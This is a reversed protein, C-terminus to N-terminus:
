YPTLNAHFKQADFNKGANAFSDRAFACLLPLWSCTDNLGKAHKRQAVLAKVHFQKKKEIILGLGGSSISERERV